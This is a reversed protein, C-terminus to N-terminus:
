MGRERGGERGGEKSEEVQEACVEGAEVVDFVEHRGTVAQVSAELLDTRGERGGEKPAFVECRAKLEGV